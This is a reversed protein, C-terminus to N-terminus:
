LKFKVKGPALINEDMDVYQVEINGLDPKKKGIEGDVSSEDIMALDEDIRASSPIMEKIFSRTDEVERL